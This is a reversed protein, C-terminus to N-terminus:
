FFAIEVYIQDINLDYFAIIAFLVQFAIPKVVDTFM